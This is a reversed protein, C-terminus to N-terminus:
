RFVDLLVPKLLVSGQEPQARVIASFLKIVMIIGEARMDGLLGRCTHIIQPGFKALFIEANLVV